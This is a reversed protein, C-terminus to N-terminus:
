QTSHSTRLHARSIFVSCAKLFGSHLPHIKGPGTNTSWDVINCRKVRLVRELQRELGSSLLYCIGPLYLVKLSWWSLIDRFTDDRSLRGTGSASTARRQRASVVLDAVVSTGTRTRLIIRNERVAQSFSCADAHELRGTERTSLHFGLRRAKCHCVLRCGHWDRGLDHM